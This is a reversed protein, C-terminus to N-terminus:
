FDNWADSAGQKIESWQSDLYLFVAGAVPWLPFGGQIEECERDNLELIENQNLHEM